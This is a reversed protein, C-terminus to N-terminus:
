GYFLTHTVTNPLGGDRVLSHSHCNKDDVVV